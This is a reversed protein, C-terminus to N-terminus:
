LGFDRNIETYGQVGRPNKLRKVGQFFHPESAFPREEWGEGTWAQHIVTVGEGEIDIQLFGPARHGTEDRLLPAGANLCLEGPVEEPLFAWAAHVHGCCFIHPGVNKLVDIVQSANVMRKAFLERAYLAPAAVPYHSAVILRDGAWNALLQKMADLQTAPLRGKASLHSRTADLGLISTRDDLSRLWPYTTSSSFSGFVAEFSRSRVSGLTYRDHNGPIVTARHPDELLPQLARRAEQFEAPLATTTLDGTILVHDPHLSLIREVVDDMRELRFRAARGALLSAIGVIRKNFLHLPNAVYRWIHIDSLHVIRM